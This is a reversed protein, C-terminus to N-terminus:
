GKFFPKETAYGRPRIEPPCVEAMATINAPRIAEAFIALVFLAGALERFSDMLPLVLYGFGSLFLSLFQVRGTGWHDSLWGGLYSGFLSGFGYISILKGADTVSYNLKQTLYLTLYFIVVMGMRNILMVVSLLWADKPIGSYTSKLHSLLRNM